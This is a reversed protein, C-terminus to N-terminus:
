RLSAVAARVNVASTHVTDISPASQVPSPQHVKMPIVDTRILSSFRHTIIWHLGRDELFGTPAFWKCQVLNSRLTVTLDFNISYLLILYLYQLGCCLQLLICPIACHADQELGSCLMAPALTVPFPMLGPHM